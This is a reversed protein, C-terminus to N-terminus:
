IKFLVHASVSLSGPKHLAQYSKFGPDVEPTNLYKDVDKFTKSVAASLGWVCNNSEKEVGLGFIMGGTYIHDHRRSVQNGNEFYKWEFAYDTVDLGLSVLWRWQSETRYVAYAMLPMHFSVKYLSHAELDGTILHNGQHTHAVNFKNVQLEVGWLWHSHCSFPTEWRSKLSFVEGYRFDGDERDLYLSNPDGGGQDLLTHSRSSYFVGGLGAGAGVYFAGEM